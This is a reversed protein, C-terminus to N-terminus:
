TQASRSLSRAHARPIARRLVALFERAPSTAAAGVIAALVSVVGVDPLYMQREAIFENSGIVLRPLLAIVALGLGWAVVPARKWTLGIVVVVQLSALLSLLVWPDSLALADHDIAFGTLTVNQALLAWVLGLQKAVFTPWVVMPGGMEPRQGIWTLAHTWGQGVLAGVVVWLWAAGRQIVTPRWITLTWAVLPVAVIGVEKSWTAVAVGLAVILWRWPGAELLAAWLALLVGFTLLLDSRGTVYLVAESNLPLIWFAVAAAVAVTPPAVLGLGKALLLGNALHLGVNALHATRPTPTQQLTWTTLARGPVISWLLPGQGVHSDEYVFPATSSWGFLGATLAGALLLRTVPAM